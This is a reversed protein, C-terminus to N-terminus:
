AYRDVGLMANLIEDATPEVVVEQAPIPDHIFEGDVYLYEYVNGDPISEVVIADTPAYKPFTVSLVRNNKDINLAYM